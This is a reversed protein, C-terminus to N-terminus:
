ERRKRLRLYRLWTGGDFPLPSDPVSACGASQSLQRDSDGRSFPRSRDSPVGIKRCRCGNTTDISRLSDCRLGCSPFPNQPVVPTDARPCRFFADMSPIEPSSYCLVRSPGELSSIFFQLM